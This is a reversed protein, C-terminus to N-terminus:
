ESDSPLYMEDSDEQEDLEYEPEAVEREDEVLEREGEALVEDLTWDDFEVILEGDEYRLAGQTREDVEADEVDAQDESEHLLAEIEDM